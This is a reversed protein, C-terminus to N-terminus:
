AMIRPPAPPGGMHAHLLAQFIPELLRREHLTRLPNPLLVATRRAARASRRVPGADGAHDQAVAVAADLSGLTALLLAQVNTRFDGPFSAHTESRWARLTGRQWEACMTQIALKDAPASEDDDNDAGGISGEVNVGRWLLTFVLDRRSHEVAKAALRPLAQDAISAPLTAGGQFLTLICDLRGQQHGSDDAVFVAHLPTRGEADQADIEAGNALLL